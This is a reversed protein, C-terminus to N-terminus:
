KITPYKFNDMEFTPAANEVTGALPYNILRKMAAEVALMASFFSPPSFAEPKGNFGDNLLQLFLKYQGNFLLAREQLEPDGAFDSVKANKKIPAVADYYVDFKEGQPKFPEDQDGEFKNPDRYCQGQRIQDFKYFHAIENDKDYVEDDNGEGQGAILAIADLASKLDTVIIGRGGMSFILDNSVQRGPDGCFLEKHTLKKSLDIFGLGIAKYFEGISYYHLEIENDDADLGKTTPIFSSTVASQRKASLKDHPVMALDFNLNYGGGEAKEM